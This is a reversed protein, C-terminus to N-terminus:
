GRLIDELEQESFFDGFGDIYKTLAQLIREDIYRKIENSNFVAHIQEDVYSRSAVDCRVSTQEAMNRAVATVEPMAYTRIDGWMERPNLVTM